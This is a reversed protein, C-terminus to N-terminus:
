YEPDLSLKRGDKSFATIRYDRLGTDADHVEWLVLFKNDSFAEIDLVRDHFKTGFQITKLPLATDAREGEIISIFADDTNAGFKINEAFVGETYGGVVFEKGEPFNLIVSAYDDKSTSINTVLPSESDSKFSGVFVDQSLSPTRGSETSLDGKSQYLARFGSVVGDYTLEVMQDDLVSNVVYDNSEKSLGTSNSLVHVEGKLSSGQTSTLAIIEVTGVDIDVLTDDTATGVFAAWNLTNEQMDLKYLFGDLGGNSGEVSGSGELLAGSTTGFIYLAGEHQKVGSVIDDEESGYQRISELRYPELGVRSYVAVAFDIKGRHTNAFQGDVSFVVALYNTAGDFFSEIGKAQLNLVDHDIENYEGDENLYDTSDRFFSKLRVINKGNDDANTVLSIVGNDVVFDVPVEGDISSAVVENDVNNNLPWENIEVKSIDKLKQIIDIDTRVAVVDDTEARVSENLADNDEQAAVSFSAFQDTGLVNIVGSTPTIAYDNVQASTEEVDVYININMDSSHVSRPRIDFIATEGENIVVHEPDYEFEPEDDRITIQTSTSVDVFQTEGPEVHDVSIRFREGDEPLQDDAVYVTIVCFAEGSKFTVVNNEPVFFDVNPRAYDVNNISREPSSESYDSTISYVFSMDYPAPKSLDVGITIPFALVGDILKPTPQINDIAACVFKNGAQRSRVLNNLRNVESTGENYNPVDRIRFEMSVVTMDFEFKEINKGDEIILQYKVKVGKSFNEVEPLILGQLRFTNEFTDNGENVTLEITNASYISSNLEVDPNPEYTITYDGTGGKVSFEFDMTEGFEFEEPPTGILQIPERSLEVQIIQPEGSDAEGSCSALLQAMLLVTLLRFSIQLYDMIKTM